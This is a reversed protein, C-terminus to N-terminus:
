LVGNEELEKLTRNKKDKWAIRGNTSRGLICNAAASSSSFVVSEIFKGNKLKGESILSNRLERISDSSGKSADLCYDSGAYVIFKGDLKAGKAEVGKKSSSLFLEIQSYKKAAKGSVANTDSTLSEAASAQAETETTTGSLGENIEKLTKGNSNKWEILGNSNKGCVFTAAYSPSGFSIDELLIHNKDILSAYQERAAKIGSSVYHAVTPFIYSGKLVWFGDANIKATARGGKGGSRSFYLLTSTDETEDSPLPEFVHHGMLPVIIKANDIFEELMDQVQRTIRSKTPTNGNKVLYRNCKSAIQYFRHELYKVRGKELTGDPTIFIIAETWYLEDKEFTHPQAIRLIADDAEGIYVFPKKRADDRGFLLYVGPAHLEEIEDSKKIDKRLIRYAVGNWNGLVARWRGEKTGDMMYIEINKGRPAM